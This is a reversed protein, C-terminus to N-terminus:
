KELYHAKDFMPSAKRPKFENSAINSTQIFGIFGRMLAKSLSNGAKSYSRNVDWM